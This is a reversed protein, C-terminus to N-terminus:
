PLTVVTVEFGGLVVDDSVLNASGIGTSGTEQNVYDEHAGAAGPLSIVAPRNRKNILLVKRKADRTIFAQAYIASTGYGTEVLKDGPAFNDHLLKLVWYRANPRGTTWNVMSVSPYQTPYGVMQSEGVVDIGLRTLRAYLYAYMAGSLNWYFHPIPRVMHAATDYPLISGLEDIDTRTSPSLRKRISEIYHVVNLFGDAQAFFTYPWAAIPEQASPTAYFHYSIMDLPTHPLHNKPNLFYQFFDPESSPASLAMGVFKTQPSVAHIATVVADYLRTYFEPSMQHESDVENLVEWYAIPYHYGSAHWKGYEDTFGGNAYWGVLRAYYDAVQKMTPDRLETGQEYDWDVRDPDSPFAAPKPTEFMWEPITSFNLVVSHGQAATANLFDVTLPDILSFNWSTKGARPPALEAVGLKPYPLWPVFRVYDCNLERLAEFVQNHIPSDRRLLPNVVVQLTATTKSIRVVKGWAVSVHARTQARAPAAVLAALAVLIQALHIASRKFQM